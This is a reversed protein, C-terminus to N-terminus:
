LKNSNVLVLITYQQISQPFVTILNIYNQLYCWYVCLVGECRRQKWVVEFYAVPFKYQSDVLNFKKDNPAIVNSIILLIWHYTSCLYVYWLVFLRFWARQVCNLSLIIQSQANRLYNIQPLALIKVFALHGTRQHGALRRWLWHYTKTLWSGSHM